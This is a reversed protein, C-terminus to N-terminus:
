RERFEFQDFVGVKIKDRDRLKVKKNSELRHGNVYTGVSSGNDRIFFRGQQWIIVAHYRSVSLHKLRIQNTKSRGITIKPGSVRIKQHLKEGNIGYLNPTHLPFDESDGRVFKSFDTWLETVSQQRQRPDKALAREIVSVVGNPLTPNIRQIPPPMKSLEQFFHEKTEGYFPLRGSLLQYLTVGLAYIDSSVSVQGGKFLEPAMYPLTGGGSQDHAIHALGFDGLLVQNDANRLLINAPKIDCHIVNSTHAYYLAKQVGDLIHAVEGVGLPGKRKKFLNQLDIGDVWDMVIFIVGANDDKDVDYFRIINPHALKVLAQVERVFSEFFRLDHIVKVAMYTSRKRDWAQYVQGMGGKGALRKLFYQNILVNKEPITM